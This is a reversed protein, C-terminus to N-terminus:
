PETERPSTEEIMPWARRLVETTLREGIFTTILTFFTGFLAASSEIAVVPDQAKLRERLKPSGELVAVELFPFEGRTLQVSRALLAQVGASGVLPALHAHLKDYVLGAAKACEDASGAAGEHVLLRKAKALQAKSARRVTSRGAM